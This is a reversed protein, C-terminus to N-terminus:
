LSENRFWEEELFEKITWVAIKRPSPRVHDLTFAGLPIGIGHTNVMM